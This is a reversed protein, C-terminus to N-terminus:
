AFRIAARSILAAKFAHQSTADDNDDDGRRMRRDRPTEPRHEAGREARMDAAKGAYYVAKIPYELRSGFNGQKNNNGLLKQHSSLELRVEAIM